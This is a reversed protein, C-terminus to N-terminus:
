RIVGRRTLAQRLQWVRERNAGMDSWGTRSASRVAIRGSDALLLLELDDVFHMLPTTSEAHLYVDTATVVVTGPLSAVVEPVQQWASAAPLALVFPDTGHRDDGAETSVCNPSSPCPALRGDHTGLNEPVPAACAVWALLGMWALPTARTLAVEGRM